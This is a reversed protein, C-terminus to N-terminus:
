RYKGTICASTFTTFLLQLLKREQMRAAGAGKARVGTHWRVKRFDALRRAASAGHAGSPAVGARALLDFVGGALASGLALVSSPHVAALRSLHFQKWSALLSTHLPVPSVTARLAPRYARHSSRARTPRSMPRPLRDERQFPSGLLAYTISSPTNSAHLLISYLLYLRLCIEVNEAGGLRQSADGYPAAGRRVARM